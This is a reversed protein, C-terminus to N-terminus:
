GTVLRVNGEQLTGVTISQIRQLRFCCPCTVMSQLRLSQSGLSGKLGNSKELIKDCRYFATVIQKKKNNKNQKLAIALSIISTSSKPNPDFNVNVM